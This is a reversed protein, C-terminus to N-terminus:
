RIRISSRGAVAQQIEQAKADVRTNIDNLQADIIGAQLVDTQYKLITKQLDLLISLTEDNYGWEYVEVIPTEKMWM